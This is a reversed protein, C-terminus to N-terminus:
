ELPPGVIDFGYRRALEKVHNLDYNRSPPETPDVVPLGADLVHARPRSAHDARASPRRRRPGQLLPAGRAARPAWGPGWFDAEILGLAGGTTERRGKITFLAGPWWVSETATPMM